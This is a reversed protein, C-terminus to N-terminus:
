GLQRWRYGMARYNPGVLNTWRQNRVIVDSNCQESAREGVNFFHYFDACNLGLLQLRGEDFHHVALGFQGIEEFQIQAFQLFEGFFLDVQPIDILVLPQGHTSQLPLDILLTAPSQITHHRQTLLDLFYPESEGIPQALGLLLVQLLVGADEFDPFRLGQHDQVDEFVLM